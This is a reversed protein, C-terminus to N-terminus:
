GTAHNLQLRNRAFLKIEGSKLWRLTDISVDSCAEFRSKFRSLKHKELWEVTKHDLDGYIQYSEDYSDASSM